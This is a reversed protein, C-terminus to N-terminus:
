KYTDLAKKWTSICVDFRDVLHDWEMWQNALGTYDRNHRCLRWMFRPGLASQDFQIYIHTGHLTVEGSVAIGGMNSRIEYSDEPLELRAAIEKAVKKALFHFRKKIAPDVYSLNGKALRVLEALQKCFKLHKSLNENHQTVLM